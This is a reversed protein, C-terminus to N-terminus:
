ALLRMRNRIGEESPPHQPELVQEIQNRKIEKPLLLFEVIWHVMTTQRNSISKLGKM